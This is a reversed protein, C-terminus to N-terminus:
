ATHRAERRAQRAYEKFEEVSYGLAEVASEVGFAQHMGDRALDEYGNQRNWKSVRKVENYGVALREFVAAKMLENM